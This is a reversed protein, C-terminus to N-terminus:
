QSVPICATCGRHVFLFCSKYFSFFSFLSLVLATSPHPGVWGSLGVVICYLKLKWIVIIAQILGALQSTRGTSILNILLCCCSFLNYGIMEIKTSLNSFISKEKKKDTVYIKKKPFAWDWMSESCCFFVYESITPLPNRLRVHIGIAETLAGSYCLHVNKIKLLPQKQGGRNIWKRLSDNQFLRMFTM